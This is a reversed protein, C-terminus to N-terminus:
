FCIDAWNMTTKSLQCISRSRWGLLCSPCAQWLCKGPIKACPTRKVWLARVGPWSAKHLREKTTIISLTWLLSLSVIESCTEEFLYDQRQYYSCKSCSICLIYLFKIICFPFHSTTEKLLKSFWIIEACLSYFYSKSHHYFGTLLM